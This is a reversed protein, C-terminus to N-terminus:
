NLCVWCVALIRKQAHFGIPEFWAVSRYTNNIELVRSRPYYVDVDIM